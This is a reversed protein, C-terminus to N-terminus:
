PRSRGRSFMRSFGGRSRGHGRGEGGDTDEDGAEDDGRDQEESEDGEDASGEASEDDYEDATDEAGDDQEEGQDEEDGEEAGAGRVSKVVLYAIGTALTVGAVTAVFPHRRAMSAVGSAARGALDKARGAAGAPAKEDEGEDSRGEGEDQEEDEGEDRSGRAGSEDDEEESREDGEQEEGQDDARGRAQEDERGESEDRRPEAPKFRFRQGGIGAELLMGGEPWVYVAVGKEFNKSSAAGAKILVASANAAFRTAGRKFREFAEPSEFVVVEIFTDGGLQVGVTLQTITAYGVRKGKEFVVGRGYGGGVVAGAKGVSPFVAYAHAKHLLRKLGLDKSELKKLAAKVDLRTNTKPM